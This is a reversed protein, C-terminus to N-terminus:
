TNPAPLFWSLERGQRACYAELKGKSLGGLSRATKSILSVRAEADGEPGILETALVHSTVGNEAGYANLRQLAAGIKRPEFDDGEAQLVRHEDASTPQFVLSGAVVRGEYTWPAEREDADKQKRVWAELARTAKHAKLQIVTDFGAYFASSGRVMAADKKDSQHHVAVVSCGFAEVLSDCFKIFKGADAADNENLGAMVKAVTDLVILRPMRDGCRKKIEDGFQQVEEPMALMPTPGVYFDPASEVGRAIKWARRRAKKIGSRGEAAAYFSPGTLSPTTGSFETGTAIALAIDLAFFSKYSGSPGVLLVTSAEPIMEKIIWTPDKGEEQEAEDEFHFKSRGPAPEAALTDLAAAFTESAPAVTWAGAENQAYRSANGIVVGLEETAWPPQCHPNWIEELLSQAMEPSLGLNLLECALQYTRTNGGRGEIAVDGRVVLDSLLRRARDTSGRTDLDSSAAAHHEVRRFVRSRIWDPLPAPDANCIVEYPKGDIVSPPVVVYSGRGRTDIDLGLGGKLGGVTPPLSGEFYLHRGGGPTRVTYTQPLAGFEGELSALSQEGEKQRGDKARGMDPDVVCWGAGEPELGINYDAESWWREIQEPDTTADLFGNPTAPTKGNVVCPFVPIDQSAYALAAILRPSKATSM